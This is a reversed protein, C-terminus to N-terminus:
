EDARAYRPNALALKDASTRRLHALIEARKDNLEGARIKAALERNLDVLDGDHGLIAALRAQEGADMARGGALEREVIALANGAVRAHFALQGEVNPAIQETLFERVAEVLEAATPRDTPM